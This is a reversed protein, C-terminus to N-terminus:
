LDVVNNVHVKCKFLTILSLFNVIECVYACLSKGQHFRFFSFELQLYNQQSKIRLSSNLFNCLRSHTEIGRESVEAIMFHTKKEKLEVIMSHTKRQKPEIMDDIISQFCDMLIFKEEEQTIELFSPHELLKL